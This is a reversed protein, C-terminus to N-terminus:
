LKEIKIRAVLEARKESSIALEEGCVMQIYYGEKRTIKKINDLHIIYSRHVRYLSGTSELMQYENLNKSTLWKTGDILGIETYQRQAKLYSITSLKVIHLDSSVQLAIKRDNPSQINERLLELQGPQTSEVKRLARDLHERRVPKLLYDIASLEFARIAYESYATVFIIKFQVEDPNFFSLIDLGSYGPMEIDLLVVNPKHAHILRIAEPLDRAEDIVQVLPFCAEILGRLALRANPEDDVILVKLPTM